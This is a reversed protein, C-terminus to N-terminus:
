NFLFLFHVNESVLAAIVGGGDKALGGFTWCHM